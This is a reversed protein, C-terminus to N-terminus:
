IDKNEQQLDGDITISLMKVPELPYDRGDRAVQSIGVVVKYGDIVKAFVPHSSTSRNDFWNLYSNDNVNIFFQSGGSNPRGTNAMSLTGPENGLKETFEDPINGGRNRTIQRGSGDLLEYETEKLPGGSGARPSFPDKAYPCGFQCMFGPIVRHFHLSNYFGRRVLDIFNSATIPMKDLFIELKFDGKTTRCTATPNARRVVIIRAPTFRSRKTTARCREAALMGATGLALSTAAWRTRRNIDSQFPANSHKSHASREWIADRMPSGGATFALVGASRLLVAM